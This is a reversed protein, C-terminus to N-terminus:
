GCYEALRELGACDLEDHSTLPTVMPPIIGRLPAPLSSANNSMDDCTIDNTNM